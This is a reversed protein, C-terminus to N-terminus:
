LPIAYSDCGCIAFLDFILKSHFSHAFAQFKRLNTPNDKTRRDVNTKACLYATGQIHPIM